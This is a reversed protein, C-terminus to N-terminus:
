QTVNQRSDLTILKENENASFTFIFILLLKIM